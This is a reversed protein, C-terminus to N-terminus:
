GRALHYRRQQVYVNGLGGYFISTKGCPHYACFIWCVYGNNVKLKIYCWM